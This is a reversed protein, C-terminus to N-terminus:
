HLEKNVRKCIISYKHKYGMAAARKAMGPRTFADIYDCNMARAWAEIAAEFHQWHAMEEGSLAVIRCIRHRWEHLLQTLCVAFIKESANSYVVWVQMQDSLVLHHADDVTMDGETFLLAREIFPAISDWAYDAEAVSLKVWSVGPVM